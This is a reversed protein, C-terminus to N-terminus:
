DPQCTMNERESQETSRKGTNKPISFRYTLGPLMM